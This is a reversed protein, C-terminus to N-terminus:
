EQGTRYNQYTAKANHIEEDIKTKSFDKERSLNMFFHFANKVDM